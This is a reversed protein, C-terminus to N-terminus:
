QNSIIKLKKGKAYKGQRHLAGTKMVNTKEADTEYNLPGTSPTIKTRVYRKSVAFKFDCTQM